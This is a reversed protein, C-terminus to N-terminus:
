VRYVAGRGVPVAEACARWSLSFLHRRKRIPLQYYAAIFLPYHRRVWEFADCMVPPVKPKLMVEVGLFLGRWMDEMLYTYSLRDVTQEFKKWPSAVIRDEGIYYKEGEKVENKTSLLRSTPRPARRPLGRLLRASLAM